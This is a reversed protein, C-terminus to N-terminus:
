DEWHLLFLSSSPLRLPPDELLQLVASAISRRINSWGTRMGWPARWVCPYTWLDLIEQKVKVMMNETVCTGESTRSQAPKCGSWPHHSLKFINHISTQNSPRTVEGLISYTAHQDRHCCQLQVKLHGKQGPGTPKALAFFWMDTTWGCAYLVCIYQTPGVSYPTLPPSHNLFQVQWLIWVYDM